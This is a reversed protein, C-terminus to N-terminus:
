IKANNVLIIHFFFIQHTFFLVLLQLPYIIPNITLILPVISAGPLRPQKWRSGPPVTCIVWQGMLIMNLLSNTVLHRFIGCYTSKGSLIDSVRIKFLESDTRHSEYYQWFIVSLCGRPTAKAHYKILWNISFRTLFESGWKRWM